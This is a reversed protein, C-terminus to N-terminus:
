AIVPTLSPNYKAQEFLRHIETQFEKHTDAHLAMQLYSDANSLPFLGGIMGYVYYPDNSAAENGMPKASPVYVILQGNLGESVFEGAAKRTELPSKSADFFRISPQAEHLAQAAKEFIKTKTDDYIVLLGRENLRAKLTDQIITFISM